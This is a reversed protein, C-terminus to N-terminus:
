NKFDRWVEIGGTQFIPHSILIVSSCGDFPQFTILGAESKRSFIDCHFLTLRIELDKFHSINHSLKESCETEQTEEHSNTQNPLPFAFTEDLHPNASNHLRTQYKSKKPDPHIRVRILPHISGKM